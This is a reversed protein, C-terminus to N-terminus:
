SGIAPHPRPKPEMQGSSIRHHPRSSIMTDLRVGSPVHFTPNKNSRPVSCCAQPKSLETRITPCTRHCNDYHKKGRPRTSTTLAISLASLGAFPCPLIVSRLTNQIGSERTEFAANLKCVAPPLAQRASRLARLCKKHDQIGSSQIPKESASAPCFMLGLWLHSCGNTNKKM